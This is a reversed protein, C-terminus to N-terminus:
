YDGEGGGVRGEWSSTDDDEQELLQEVPTYTLLHSPLHVPARIPAGAPAAMAGYGYRSAGGGAGGNRQNHQDREIAQVNNESIKAEAREETAGFLVTMQGAAVLEVAM